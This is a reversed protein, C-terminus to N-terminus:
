DQRTGMRLCEGLGRIAWKTSVYPSTYPQGVAGVMSANNILVGSGQERFHPLAARTGHVYGLYNTEVVRRFSEPPIKEFRGFLTVAANNVWVDSRGFSEIARRALSRM